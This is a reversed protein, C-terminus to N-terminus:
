VCIKGRFETRDIQCKQKYYSEQEVTERADSQRLGSSKREAGAEDWFFIPPTGTIESSPNYLTMKM